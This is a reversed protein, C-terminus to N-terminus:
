RGDDQHYGSTPDFIVAPHIDTLDLQRLKKIEDLIGGYAALLEALREPTFDVGAVDKFPDLPRASEEPM